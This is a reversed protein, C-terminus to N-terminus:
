IHVVNELNLALLVGGTIIALALGILWYFFMDVKKKVDAVEEKSVANDEIRAIGKRNDEAVEKRAYCGDLKDPLEDLQKTIREMFKEVNDMKTRLAIVMGYTEESRGVNEVFATLGKAIGQLGDAVQSNHEAM